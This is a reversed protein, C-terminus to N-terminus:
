LYSNSFIWRKTDKIKTAVGKGQYVRHYWYMFLTTATLTGYIAARRINEKRREDQQQAAIDYKIQDVQKQLSYRSIQPCSFDIRQIPLNNAHEVYYEHDYRVQLQSLKRRQLLPSEGQTKGSMEDDLETLKEDDQQATGPEHEDNAMRRANIEIRKQEHQQQYEALIQKELDAREKERTEILHQENNKNDFFSTFRDVQEERQDYMENIRRRLAKSANTKRFRQLEQQRFLTNLSELIKINLGSLLEIQSMTRLIFSRLESRTETDIDYLQFQNKYYINEIRKVNNNDVAALTEFNHIKSHTMLADLRLQLDEYKKRWKRKHYVAGCLFILIIIHLEDVEFDRIEGNKTGIWPLRSSQRLIFSTIWQSLSVVFAPILVTPEQSARRKTKGNTKPIQLTATEPVNTGYDYAASKLM